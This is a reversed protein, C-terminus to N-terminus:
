WMPLAHHCESLLAGPFHKVYLAHKTFLTTFLPQMLVEAPGSLWSAVKQSLNAILPSPMGDKGTSSGAFLLLAPLWLLLWIKAPALHTNIDCSWQASNGLQIHM